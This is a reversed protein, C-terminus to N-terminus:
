GLRRVLEPMQNNHTAEIHGLEELFRIYSYVSAQTQDKLRERM